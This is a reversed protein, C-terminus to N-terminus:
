KIMFMKIHCQEHQEQCQTNFFLHLHLFVKDEEEEEVEGKRRKRKRMKGLYILGILNGKRNKPIIHKAIILM